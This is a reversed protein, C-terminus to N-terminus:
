VCYVLNIAPGQSQARQWSKFVIYVDHVIEIGHPWFHPTINGEGKMLMTRLSKCFQVFIFTGIAHCVSAGM